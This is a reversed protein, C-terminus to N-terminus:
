GMAYLAYRLHRLLGERYRLAIALGLRWLIFVWAFAGIGFFGFVLSHAAAAGFKGFVNRVEFDPNSLLEGFGGSLESQDERWYFYFSSLAGFLFM